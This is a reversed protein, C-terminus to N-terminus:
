EEPTTDQCYRYVTSEDVSVGFGDAVLTVIDGYSLGMERWERVQEIQEDNLKKPRGIPKGEERRREVTEQARERALNAWFENFAGIIQFLLKGQASQTDFRDELSIFDTDMSDLRDIDNLVQQLSRGFRSLERVVVADYVDAEDMLRDFSERRDAQGSVATDEYLTLSHDERDAWEELKERQQEHSGESKQQQTSVRVYGAVDM